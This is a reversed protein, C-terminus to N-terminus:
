DNPNASSNVTQWEANAFASRAAQGEVESLVADPQSAIQQM